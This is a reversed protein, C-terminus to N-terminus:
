KIVAISFKKVTNAYGSLTLNGEKFRVHLSSRLVDM